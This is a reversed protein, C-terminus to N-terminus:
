LSDRIYCLSHVVVQNGAWDRRMFSGNQVACADHQALCFESASQPKLLLIGLIPFLRGVSQTSWSVKREGSGKMCKKSEDKIWCGVRQEEAGCGSFFKQGHVFLVKVIDM